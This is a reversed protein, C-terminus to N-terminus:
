MGCDGGDDADADDEAEDKLGKSDTQKKKAQEQTQFEAHKQRFYARNESMHNLESHLRAILTETPLHHSEDGFPYCLIHAIHLFAVYLMPSVLVIVLQLGITQIAEYLQGMLLVNRHHSDREGSLQESRRRIENMSSGLAMGCSLSLIANNVHVLIALLQAYMFPTQMTINMKLSEIESVCSQAMVITRVLLPPLVTVGDEVMPHSVLEGIWSWIARTNSLSGAHSKGLQVVEEESLMGQAVLWSYVGKLDVHHKRDIMQTNRVEVNLIYGSAICYSEIMKRSAPTSRITHLMFVLQRIGILIKEFTTVTVWWRKFAQQVYIGLMFVIFFKLFNGFEQFKETDLKSAKPIYFVGLAAAGALFTCYSLTYIVPRQGFVSRGVFMLARATLLSDHDYMLLKNHHSEGFVPSQTTAASAYNLVGSAAKRIREKNSLEPMEATDDPLTTQFTPNKPLLPVGEDLLSKRVSMFGSSGDDEEESDAAPPKHPSKPLLPVGEELQGLVEEYDDTSGSKMKM